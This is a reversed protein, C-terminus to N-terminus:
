VSKRNFDNQLKETVPAWVRQDAIERHRTADSVSNRVNYRVIEELICNPNWWCVDTLTERLRRNHISSM